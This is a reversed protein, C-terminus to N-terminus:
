TGGDSRFPGPPTGLRAESYYHPRKIVVGPAFAVFDPNFYGPKGYKLTCAEDLPEVKGGAGALVAQGAATDWEMTPGLRPYLDAEGSAVLCFKLSSGASRLSKVRYRDIFLDTERNRHSRSAVIVLADNDPKSVALKRGKVQIDPGLSISDGAGTADGNRTWSTAEIASQDPLNLFLRGRAPAFVVGLRPLAHEVYAINVTFDKQGGVFSRTGDLPDVIFFRDPRVSQSETREESVVTVTPFAASLGSCIIQDATLDANTVPSRDSKFRVSFDGSDFFDLIREGAELALETIVNCIREGDM